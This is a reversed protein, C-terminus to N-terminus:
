AAFLFPIDIQNNQEALCYIARAKGYAPWPLLLRRYRAWRPLGDKIRIFANIHDYRPERSAIVDDYVGTVREEYRNDTIKQLQAMTVTRRLWESGYFFCIPHLQGPYVLDMPGGQEVLEYLLAHNVISMLLNPDGGKAADRWAAFAASLFASEKSMDGISKECVTTQPALIIEKYTEFWDLQREARERSDFDTTLWADMLTHFRFRDAPGVQKALEFSHDVTERRTKRADWIMTSVGNRSDVLVDRCNEIPFQSLEMRGDVPLAATEQLTLAKCHGRETVWFARSVGIDDYFSMGTDRGMVFITSWNTISRLFLTIVKHYGSM